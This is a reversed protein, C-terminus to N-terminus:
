FKGIQKNIIFMKEKLNMLMTIVAAEIDKGSLELMLFIEANREM